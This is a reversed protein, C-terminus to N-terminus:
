PRFLTLECHPNLDLCTIPNGEATQFIGGLEVSVAHDHPNVISIGRSFVRCLVDGRMTYPGLPRGLAASRPNEEM